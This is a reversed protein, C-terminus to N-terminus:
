GIKRTLLFMRMSGYDKAAKTNGVYHCTFRDANYLKLVAALTETVYVLKEPTVPEIRAARSVHAGFFNNHNLIPDITNYVPGLHGGLRLALTDPLGLAALNLAALEEQLSLACDAAKSADDFVLFLGDGWTNKLLIDSAFRKTIRAVTGLMVSVFTPLQGDTLKSFGHIDGFLMARTRRGAAHKDGARAQARKIEGTPRATDGFVPIVTQPLGTRRWVAMDAATGAPGTPPQGDWVAIQEAPTGILAARLQALGMALQSCYGFLIDDGLYGGETAFRRPEAAAAYCRRFREVWREGAPRVSVDIFEEIEFPLVVHLSGGRALVAEAFLIDAGAALSGYGFLVASGNLAQEIRQRVDDEAEAPFRGREGPATIIHGLYHIVRPLALSGSTDVSIGKADAVLHLQQITRAIDRFNPSKKINARLLDAVKEAEEAAGVILQAELETALEYYGKPEKWEALRLLLEKALAIAAEAEGGLLRLNACCIGPYYADAFGAQLYQQYVAEYGKAANLLLRQREAGKSALAEDRDLRPIITQLDLALRQPIEAREEPGLKTIGLREALARAQDTAGTSALCLVARHRLAWDDPHQAHGQMALDYAEFLEGDREQAKALNLWEAASHQPQNAPESDAM